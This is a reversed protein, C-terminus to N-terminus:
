LTFIFCSEKIILCLLTVNEWENFFFYHKKVLPLFHSIFLPSSWARVHHIMLIWKCAGLILRLFTFSFYQKLRRKSRHDIKSKVLGDVSVTGSKWWSLWHQRGKSEVQCILDCCTSSGYGINNKTKKTKKLYLEIM